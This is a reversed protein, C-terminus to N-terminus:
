TTARWFGFAYRWAPLNGTLLDFDDIGFLFERLRDGVENVVVPVRGDRALHLIVSLSSRLFSRVQREVQNPRKNIQELTVRSDVGSDRRAPEQAPGSAHGHKVQSSRPPRPLASHHAFVLLYM